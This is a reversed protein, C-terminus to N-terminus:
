LHMCRANAGTTGINNNATCNTLSVTVDVVGGETGSGVNMSLGPGPHKLSLSSPPCSETVLTVLHGFVLGSCLRSGQHFLWPFGKCAFCCVTITISSVKRM